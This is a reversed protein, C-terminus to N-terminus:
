PSPKNYVREFMAARIEPSSPWHGQRQGRHETYAELKEPDPQVPAGDKLFVLGAKDTPMKAVFAKAEGLYAQVKKITAAPDLPTETALSRWEEVPHHLNRKIEAILGEPTFGPSKEVAAWALAGLPLVEEHITVLDVIDRLERRGAAAMLKNTALDVPNLMFGFLEDRMTPFFRFDSDAVWELRTAEDGNRVEATHVADLQRIWSVDFGAARLVEADNSAAEAVREARDHFIDVDGSYRPASVNLPTSGAVYSEPDRSAALVSLIDAQIKHLPM